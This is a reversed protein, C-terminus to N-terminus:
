QTAQITDIGFLNHYSDEGPHMLEMLDFAAEARGGELVSCAPIAAPKPMATTAGYLLLDHSGTPKIWAYNNRYKFGWVSLAFLADILRAPPTWIYLVSPWDMIASISDARKPTVLEEVSLFKWPVDAYIIVHKGTIDMDEQWTTVTGGKEERVWEKVHRGKLEPTIREQHLLEHRRAESLKTLEYLTTWSSPLHHSITSNAIWRDKSIIMHRLATKNTFPLMDCFEEWRGYELAKKADCLRKGTLVIGGVTKGHADMVYDAWDKPTDM